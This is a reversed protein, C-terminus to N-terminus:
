KRLGLRWVTARAAQILKQIASRVYIEACEIWALWEMNM